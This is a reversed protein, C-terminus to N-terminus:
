QPPPPLAQAPAPVPSAAPSAEPKKDLDGNLFSGGLMAKNAERKERRPAELLDWTAKDIFRLEGGENDFGSKMVCYAKKGDWERVEVTLNTKAVPLTDLTHDKGYTQELQKVIGKVNGKGVVTLVVSYLRDKFFNYTISAVEFRGYRLKDGARKYSQFRGLDETRELGQFGSVPAGLQADPLGNERDLADLSGAARLGINAALLITAVLLWRFFRLLVHNRVPRPSSFFPSRSM